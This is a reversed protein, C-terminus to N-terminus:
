VIFTDRRLCLEIFEVDKLCKSNDVSFDVQILEGPVYFNRRLTCTATFPTKRKELLKGIIGSVKKELVFELPKIIPSKIEIESM